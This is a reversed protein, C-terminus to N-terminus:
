GMGRRGAEGGPDMGSLLVGGGSIYKGRHNGRVSQRKRGRGGIRVSLDTQLRRDHGHEVM